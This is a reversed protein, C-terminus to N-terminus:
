LLVHPLVGHAVTVPPPEPPVVVAHEHTQVHTLSVPRHVSLPAGQQESESQLTAAVQSVPAHAPPVFSPLPHMVVASQGPAPALHRVNMWGHGIQSGVVFVYLPPGFSPRVQVGPAEGTSPSKGDLWSQGGDVESPM